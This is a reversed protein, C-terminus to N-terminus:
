LSSKFVKWGFVMDATTWLLSTLKEEITKTLSFFLIYLLKKKWLTAAM